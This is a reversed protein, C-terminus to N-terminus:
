SLMHCLLTEVSYPKAPGGFFMVDCSGKMRQVTRHGGHLMVDCNVKMRQVTKHGGHLM